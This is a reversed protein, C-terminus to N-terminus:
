QRSMLLGALWCAVRIIAQPTAHCCSREDARSRARWHRRRPPRRTGHRGSEADRRVGDKRKGKDHGYWHNWFVHGSFPFFTLTQLGHDLGSDRVGRIGTKLGWSKMRRKPAPGSSCLDCLSVLGRCLTSRAAGPKTSGRSPSSAHGTSRVEYLTSTHNHLPDTYTLYTRLVDTRLVLHQSQRRWPDALHLSTAYSLMGDLATCQRRRTTRHAEVPRSATGAALSPM